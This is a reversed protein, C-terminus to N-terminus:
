PKAAAIVERAANKCYSDYFALTDDDLDATQIADNWAQQNLYDNYAVGTKDAAVTVWMRSLLAYKDSQDKDDNFKVTNDLSIASCIQAAALTDSAPTQRAKMADIDLEAHAVAPLALM